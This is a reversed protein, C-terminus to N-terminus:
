IQFAVTKEWGFDIGKRSGAITGNIGEPALLFTGVVSEKLMLSYLPARFTEFDPFEAFRYLSAVVVSLHTNEM